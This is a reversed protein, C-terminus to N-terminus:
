DLSCTAISRFKCVKSIRYTRSTKVWKMNTNSYLNYFLPFCRQCVTSILNLTCVRILVKVCPLCENYKTSTFVYLIDSLDQGVKYLLKSIFYTLIEQLYMCVIWPSPNTDPNKQAARSQVQVKLKFQQLVQLKRKIFSSSKSPIQNYVNSTLHECLLITLKQDM